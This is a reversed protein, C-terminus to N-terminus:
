AKRRILGFGALATGLLLFGAPVPVPGPGPGGPVSVNISDLRVNGGNNTSFTISTVDMMNTPMITHGGDNNDFMADTEAYSNTDSPSAVFLTNGTGNGLLQFWFSDLTFTGGGVRTLVTVENNNLAACPKTANSECNGNVIRVIDFQFGQEIHPSTDGPSLGDFGLTIASASGASLLTATAFAALTATTKKM